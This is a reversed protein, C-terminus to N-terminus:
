LLYYSGQMNNIVSSALFPKHEVIIQQISMYLPDLNVFCDAVLSVFTPDMSFAQLLLAFIFYVISKSTSYVCKYRVKSYTKRKEDSLHQRHAQYMSEEQCRM